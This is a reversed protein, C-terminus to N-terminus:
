AWQVSSSLGGGRLLDGFRNGRDAAHMCPMCFGWSMGVNVHGIYSCAYHWERSQTVSFEYSCIGLSLPSSIGSSDRFSCVPCVYSMGRPLSMVPNRVIAYGTVHRNLLAPHGAAVEWFDLSAAAIPLEQLRYWCWSHLVPQRHPKWSVLPWRCLMHCTM